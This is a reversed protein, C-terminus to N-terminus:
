AYRHIIEQAVGTELLAGDFESYFHVRIERVKNQCLPRKQMSVSFYSSRVPIEDWVTPFLIQFNTDYQFNM